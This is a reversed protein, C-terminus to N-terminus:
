FRPAPPAGSQNVNIKQQIEDVQFKLDVSANEIWKLSSYFNALSKEMDAVNQSKAPDNGVGYQYLDQTKVLSEDRQV